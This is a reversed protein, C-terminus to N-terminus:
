VLRLGLLCSCLLVSLDIKIEDGLCIRHLIGSGKGIVPIGCIIDHLYVTIDAQGQLICLRSHDPFSIHFMRIRVEIEVEPHDAAVECMIGAMGYVGADGSCVFAVDKGELCAELAMRCREVEKRMATSKVEKGATLERILDVYVTYGAVVDCKEIAMRAAPTMYEPKGPGIGVIYIKM